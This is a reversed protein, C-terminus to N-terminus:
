NPLPQELEALASASLLDAITVRELEGRLAATVQECARHLAVISESLADCRADIVMQARLPGDVAEVVDLLSIAEPAQQLQYGGSRGLRSRILQRRALVQLIKLVSDTPIDLQKAVQRAQVPRKGRQTALFTIALAAHASTKSLKM